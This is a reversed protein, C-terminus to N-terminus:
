LCFTMYLPLYCVDDQIKFDGSHIVYPTHLNTSFKQQFKKLSSTTYRQTSKVEIPCINHKNTIDQKCVLFDIEMNERSENDSKSYFYLPKKNACLMQSVLNEVLMGKNLELKDLMLKRYLETGQIAAEDFAHSILLGTDGLYLKYKADDRNLKLGISPETAGYCTNIVRSENLWFFANAYNRSRAGKKLSGIRFRKEHRQLQGPISDWISAVKPADEGAYQYIDNRYLELINRKIHDVEDFDKTERYEQIAQPMGGVIMYLRIYDMAKRHFAPGLSVQKAFNERIFNPLLEEGMAWLFEEFDMPFMDIHSEESPITIGQTNKRISVLSGTEIYHYRGDKVLWKIAERAKPYRQVEDFIILSKGPVLKVNAWLQLRMFFNDLDPLYNDFIGRIEDNMQSFNVLIYSAYENKAFEEVIYSKGVRRVGDILLAEKNARKDKWTLLDNYIKRKMSITKYWVAIITYKLYVGFQL